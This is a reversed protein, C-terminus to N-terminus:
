QKLLLPAHTYMYVVYYGERRKGLVPFPSIHGDRGGSIRFSSTPPLHYMAMTVVAVERKGFSPPLTYLYQDGDRGEGLVHLTYM